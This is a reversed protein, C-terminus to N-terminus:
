VTLSCSVQVDIGMKQLMQHFHARAQQYDSAYRGYEPDDMDPRYRILDTLNRIIAYGIHFDLAINGPNSIYVTRTFTGGVRCLGFEIVRYDFDFELRRDGAMGRVLGYM